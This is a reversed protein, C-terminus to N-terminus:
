VIRCNLVLWLRSTSTLGGRWSSRSVLTTDRTVPGCSARGAGRCCAPSTGIIVRSLLIILNCKCLKAFIFDTIHSRVNHWLMFFHVYYLACNCMACPMVCNSLDLRVDTSTNDTVVVCYDTNGSNWRLLFPWSILSVVLISPLRTKWHKLMKLRVYKTM